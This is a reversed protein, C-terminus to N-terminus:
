MNAAYNAILGASLGYVFNVAIAQVFYMIYKTEGSFMGPGMITSVIMLTGAGVIGGVVIAVNSYNALPSSPHDGSSTCQGWKYLWFTSIGKLLFDIIMMIDGQGLRPRFLTDLVGIAISQAFLQTFTGCM